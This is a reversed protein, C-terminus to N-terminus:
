TEDGGVTNFLLFSDNDFENSAASLVISSGIGWCGGGGFGNVLATAAPMNQATNPM